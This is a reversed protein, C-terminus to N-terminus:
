LKNPPSNITAILVEESISNSLSKGRYINYAYSDNVFDWIMFVRGMSSLKASFSNIKNPPTIDATFNISANSQIGFIDICYIIASNNGEILAPTANYIYNYYTKNNLSYNLNNTMSYTSQNNLKFSCNASFIDLTINFLSKKSFVTEKASENFTKPTNITINAGDLYINYTANKPISETTLSTSCTVSINYKGTAPFSVSATFNKGTRENFPLIEGGNISYNCYDIGYEYSSANYTFSTLNGYNGSAPIFAGNVKVPYSHSLNIEKTILETSGSFGQANITFYEQYIGEKYLSINHYCGFTEAENCEYYFLPIGSFNYNGSDDSAATYNFSENCVITITQNKVGEFDISLIKGNIGSFDFFADGTNDYTLNILSPVPLTITDGPTISGPVDIGNYTYSLPYLSSLGRIESIINCQLLDTGIFEFTSNLGEFSYFGNNDTKDQFIEFIGTSPISCNLTIPLNIAPNGNTLNIYGKFYNYKFTTPACFGASLAILLVTLFIHSKQNM